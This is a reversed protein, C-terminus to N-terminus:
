LERDGTVPMKRELNAVRSATESTAPAVATARVRPGGGQDSIAELVVCKCAKPFRHVLAGEMLHTVAEEAGGVELGTAVAALRRGHRPQAARRRRWHEGKGLEHGRRDLHCSTSLVTSFPSKPQRRSKPLNITKKNRSKVITSKKIKQM